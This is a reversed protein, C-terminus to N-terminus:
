NAAVSRGNRAEASAVREVEALAAIRADAVCKNDV